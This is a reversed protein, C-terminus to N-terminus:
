DKLPTLAWHVKVTATMPVDGVLTGYLGTLVKDGTLGKEGDVLRRGGPAAVAEGRFVEFDDSTAQQYKEPLFKRGSTTHQESRKKGDLRVCDIKATFTNGPGSINATYAGSQADIKIMAPWRASRMLKEFPIEASEHCTEREDVATKFLQDRQVEMKVTGTVPTKSDVIWIQYRPSGKGLSEGAKKAKQIDAQVKPNERMEQTVRARCTMDEGCKELKAMYVAMEPSPQFAGNKPRNAARHPGGPDGPDQTMPQQAILTARIALSRRTSWEQSQYNNNTGSAKGEIEITYELIAKKGKPVLLSAAYAGSPPAALTLAFVILVLARLLSLRNQSNLMMIPLRRKSENTESLVIM